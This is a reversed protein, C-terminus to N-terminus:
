KQKVDTMISTGDAFHVVTTYYSGAPIKSTDESYTMNEETYESQVEFAFSAWADKDNQLNKASYLTHIYCPADCFIQYGGFGGTLVNKNKILSKDKLYDPCFYVKKYFAPNSENSDYISMRYFNKGTFAKGSATTCDIRSTALIQTKGTKGSIEEFENAFFRKRLGWNVMKNNADLNIYDLSLIYTKKSNDIICNIKNNDDIEASVEKDYICEYVRCLLTEIKENGNADKLDLVLTYYGPELGASDIPLNLINTEKEAETYTFVYPVLAEIEKKTYPIALKKDLPNKLLYYKFEYEGNKNKYIGSGGKDSPLGTWTGSNTDNDGTNAGSSLTIVGGRRSSYTYPTNVGTLNSNIYPPINDETLDAETNKSNDLIAQNGFSDRVVVSIKVKYGSPVSIKTDREIEAVFYNDKTGSPYIVNYFYSLQKEKAKTIQDETLEMSLILDRKGTSLVAPAVNCSVPNEPLFEELMETSGPKDVNHFYVYPESITGYYRREAFSFYPVIYIRYIGTKRTEATNQKNYAFYGALANENNSINMCFQTSEPEEITPTYTYVCIYEHKDANVQNVVSEIEKNNSIEFKKAGYESAKYEVLDTVKANRPIARIVEKENGVKDSICYKVFTNMAPNRDFSFKRIMKNDSSDSVENEINNIDYGYYAKINVVDAKTGIFSDKANQSFKLTVTDTGDENINRILNQNDVAKNELHNIVIQKFTFTEADPMIQTEDLVTDKIVYFYKKESETGGKDIVSVELKILGDQPSQINYKYYDSNESPKLSFLGNGNDTFNFSNERTEGTGSGNNKMVTETVKLTAVGTGEDKAECEIYVYDKTHFPRAYTESSSIESTIITNGADIKRLETFDNNSNSDYFDPLYLNLKTIVPADTEISNNIKYIYTSNKNVLTRDDIDCVAETDIKIMLNIINSKNSFLDLISYKPKITLETCDSNWVPPNFYEEYHENENAPNVIQIAAGIGYDVTSIDIEKNFTIKIPSDCEVGASFYDPKINTIVPLLIDKAYLTIGYTELGNGIGGLVKVSAKTHDENNITLVLYDTTGSKLHIKGEKVFGSPSVTYGSTASELKWGEFGYGNSLSYQLTIEQEINFTEKSGTSLLSNNVKYGAVESESDDDVMFRINVNETTKNNIRYSWSFDEESMFIKTTNDKALYYIKDHPIMVSVTEYANELPLFKNNILSIVSSNGDSTITSNFFTDKNINGYSYSLSLNDKEDDPIVHGFKVLIPTDKAFEDNPNLSKPEYGIIVPRKYIVANIKINECEKNLILNTNAETSSIRLTTYPVENNNVDVVSWGYFQYNKDVAINLPLTQGIDFEEYTNFNISGATNSNIPTGTEGDIIGFNIKAKANTTSNILYTFTYEDEMKVENTGTRYFFIAPVTVTVTTAESGNFDLLSSNKIIISKDDLKRETFNHDVNSGNISIKIKNLLESCSSDPAKNFNITIDSDKPYVTNAAFNNSLVIKEFCHAKVTVATVVDYIILKTNPSTKDAIKIKSEELEVGGSTVTWGSFVYGSAVDFTLPIEQGVSYQNGSGSPSIIGSNETATFTVEAKTLTTFDIRYDFSIGPDGYSVKAGDELKYYFDSPISVTVLKTQGEQVDLLDSSLAKFTITNDTVEPESFNGRVPTGGISIGINKLQGLDEPECPISKNFTITISSNKSVTPIEKNTVPSFDIVKLRPACIAKIESGDSIEKIIATTSINNEDAISVISSDYSWKVFQYNANETFALSFMQGISYEKSVASVKGEEANTGIGQPFIINAKDDTFETIRYNWSKAINMSINNEDQIESSITIKITKYTEGAEFEILHSKDTEIILLNDKIVPALFYEAISIDAENTISINKFFTRGNLEYAYINESSDKKTIADAPIEEESFIFSNINPKKSFQVTVPRDRSVGKSEWKPSPENAFTIRKVCNPIIRIGPINEKLTVKTTLSEPDSFSVIDTGLIENEENEAIWNILCYEPNESFKVEFEYGIKVQVNGAPVTTGTNEVAQVLMTNSEANTYQVETELKERFDSGTLFNECGTLFIALSFFCFFIIKGSFSFVNNKMFHM